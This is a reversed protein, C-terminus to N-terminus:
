VAEGRRVKFRSGQRRRIRHKRTLHSWKRLLKLQSHNDLRVFLKVVIRADSLSDLFIGSRNNVFSYVM